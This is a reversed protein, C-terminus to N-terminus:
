KPQYGMDALRAARCLRDVENKREEDTMRRRRENEDVPVSHTLQENPAKWADLCPSPLRQREQTTSGAEAPRDILLNPFSIHDLKFIGFQLNIERRREWDRLQHLTQKLRERKDALKDPLFGRALRELHLRANQLQLFGDRLHERATEFTRKADELEDILDELDLPRKMTPKKAEAIEPRESVKM